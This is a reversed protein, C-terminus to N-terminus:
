TKGVIDAPKITESESFMELHCSFLRSTKEHGTFSSLLLVDKGQLTRIRLARKDQTFTAM